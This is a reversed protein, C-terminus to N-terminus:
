LVKKGIERRLRKGLLRISADLETATWFWHNPVLGLAGALYSTYHGVIVHREALKRGLAQCVAHRDHLQASFAPALATITRTDDAEPWLVGARAAWSKLAEIVSTAKRHDLFRLASIGTQREVFASIAHDSPEQVEGLWYLTWWLAKIKGLHARHGMPGDWHRNLHDLLQGLEALSMDAMSAKGIKEVQISKRTDDDIGQRRCAARVAKMKDLRSQDAISRGPAYRRDGKPARPKNEAM